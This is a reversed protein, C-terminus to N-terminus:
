VAPRKPAEAVAPGNKAIQLRVFAAPGAKGKTGEPYSMWIAGKCAPDQIIFEDFGAVVTAAKVRIMKGDFSASSALVDCVSTDVVDAFAASSLAFSLLFLLVRMGRAYVEAWRPFFACQRMAPFGAIM